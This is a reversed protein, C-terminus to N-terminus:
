RVAASRADAPAQPSTGVGATTTGANFTGSTLGNGFSVQQAALTQTCNIGKASTIDKTTEVIKAEILVQRTATDLQTILQEAGPLEKATTSLIIQHTREDALMVSRSSLTNTVEHIINTPESYNLQVVQTVLPELAKPDKATIRIIPNDPDRVMQWGWNDLLAKLAQAATVHKWKETVKPPPVPRGDPGVVDLLRPDFQINLNALLALQRVANPLELDDFAVVDAVDDGNTSTITASNTATADAPQPTVTTDNTQALSVLAPVALFSAILLVLKTKM